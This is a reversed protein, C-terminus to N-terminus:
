FAGKPERAQWPCLCNLLCIPACIPYLLDRTLEKLTEQARFNPLSSNAGLSETPLNTAKWPSQPSTWRLLSSHPNSICSGQSHARLFDKAQVSKSTKDLWLLGTTPHPATTPCHSKSKWLPSEGPFSSHLNQGDGPVSEASWPQLVSIQM